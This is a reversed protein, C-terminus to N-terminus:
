AENGQVPATTVSHNNRMAWFSHKGLWVRDTHLAHNIIKRTAPKDLDDLDRTVVEIYIPQM